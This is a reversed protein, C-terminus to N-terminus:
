DNTSDNSVSTGVATPLKKLQLNTTIANSIIESKKIDTFTVNATLSQITGDRITTKFDETGGKKKATFGNPFSSSHILSGNTSYLKMIGNVKEGELSEDNVQYKVSMTVQNGHVNSLPVFSANELTLLISDKDSFVNTTLSGCFLFALVFIISTATKLM